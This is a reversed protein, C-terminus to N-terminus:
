NHADRMEMVYVCRTMSLGVVWVSSLLHYNRLLFSTRLSWDASAHRLGASLSTVTVGAAQKWVADGAEITVENM